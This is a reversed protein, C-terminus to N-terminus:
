AKEALPWHSTASVPQLAHKGESAGPCLVATSVASAHQRQHRSRPTVTRHHERQFIRVPIAGVRMKHVAWCSTREM